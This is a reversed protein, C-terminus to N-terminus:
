EKKAHGGVPRPQTWRNLLPTMANMVLVAFMVGEPNNGFIRIVVTLMGVGLGFIWRGPKTLPSSVPDTVIFFAGLLVAGSLLHQLVTLSHGSERAWHDVPAVLAVGILMGATLRWDGAKRLLLWLGGLIIMAASTEGLSGAVNGEFLKLLSAGGAALPTAGTTAGVPAAWTTMEATFCAMLFARGVMAPNFINYGLGGFIMKGLAVAVIAGIASMYPPLGPPLSFALILGTILGSGDLLSFPKRRAFTFVYEAALAAVVCTVIQCVAAARFFWVAAATVPLLGILVDIMMRRTTFAREWLHPGTTTELLPGAAADAALLAEAPTTPQDSM